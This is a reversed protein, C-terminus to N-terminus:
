IRAFLEVRDDLYLRCYWWGFGGHASEENGREGEDAGGEGLEFARLM